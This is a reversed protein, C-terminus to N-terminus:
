CGASSRQGQFKMSLRQIRDLLLEGVCDSVGAHEMEGCLELNQVDIGVKHCVINRM